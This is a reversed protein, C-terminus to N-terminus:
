WSDPLKPNNGMDKVMSSRKTSRSRHLNTQQANVINANKGHMVTESTADAYGLVSRPPFSWHTVIARTVDPIQSYELIKTRM